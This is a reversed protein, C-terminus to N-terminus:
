NARGWIRGAATTCYCSAGAPVAREMPCVTNGANCSQGASAVGPATAYQTAPPANAPAAAYPPPPSYYPPPPYYAPPPYYIPPPYYVPPGYIPYGFGVWIRASAPAPVGMLVGLFVGLATLALQRHLTTMLARIM